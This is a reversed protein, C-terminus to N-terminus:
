LPLPEPVPCGMSISIVYKLSNASMQVASISARVSVRMVAHIMRDAHYAILYAAPFGV